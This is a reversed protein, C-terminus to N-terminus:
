VCCFYCLWSYVDESGAESHCRSMKLDKHRGPSGSPKNEFWFDWNPFISWLQWLFVLHGYFIGFYCKGLIGFPWSIFWLKGEWKELIYWLLCKQHSFIGDPL